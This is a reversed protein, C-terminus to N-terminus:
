AKDRTNTGLEYKRNAMICGSAIKGKSNALIQFNNKRSVPHVM